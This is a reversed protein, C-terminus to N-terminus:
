VDDVAATGRASSGDADTRGRASRKFANRVFVADNMGDAAVRANEDVGAVTELRGIRQYCVEM